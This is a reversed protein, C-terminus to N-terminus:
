LMVVHNDWARKAHAFPQFETATAHWIGGMGDTVLFGEPGAALGCVDERRHCTVFNGELDFIHLRGGRPSTIGFYQGDGSLAVSGAYALMAMQEGLPAEAIKAEAWGRRHLALLPPADMEDGEWQMAFGVLGDETMALHRISNLHLEPDLFVQELLEGEPTIYALSPRMTPLNLKGRGDDVRPDTRIGGNAVVLTGDKMQLAEHPGIGQTEIEGVRAYGQSRSWLGIKGRTTVYDNELTALIDGGQLFTGHGMFHRGEPSELEHLVEGTVCHIVRAFTGPRRAFGVAEPAVPHAAGAHGRHPVPVRFVDNGLIDIGFLAHQGTPEKAFALFAPSGADAWSLRPTLASAAMAALFARRTTM